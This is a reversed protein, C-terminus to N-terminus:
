SVGGPKGPVITPSSASSGTTTAQASHIRWRWPGKRTLGITTVGRLNLTWRRGNVTERGLARVHRRLLPPREVSSERKKRRAVSPGQPPFLKVSPIEVRNGHINGNNQLSNTTSKIAKTPSPGTAPVFQSGLELVAPIDCARRPRSLEPGQSRESPPIDNSFVLAAAFVGRVSPGERGCARGRGGTARGLGWCARSGLILAEGDGVDEWSRRLALRQRCPSPLLEDDYVGCM